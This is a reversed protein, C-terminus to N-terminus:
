LVIVIDNPNNQIPGSVPGKINTVFGQKKYLLQCLLHLPIKHFINNHQMIPITPDLPKPVLFWGKATKIRVM